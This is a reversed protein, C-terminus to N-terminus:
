KQALKTRWKHNEETTVNWRENKQGNGHSLPSMFYEEREYTTSFGTRVDCAEPWGTEAHETMKQITAQPLTDNNM